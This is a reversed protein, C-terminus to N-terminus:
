RPPVELHYTFRFWGVRRRMVWSGWVFYRQHLRQAFVPRWAFWTHPVRQQDRTLWRIKM